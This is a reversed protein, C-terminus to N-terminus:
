ISLAELKELVTEIYMLGIDVEDSNNGDWCTASSGDLGMCNLCQVVIHAFKTGMSVPIQQKAAKVFVAHIEKPPKLGQKNHGTQMGTKANSNTKQLLQIASENSLYGYTTDWVVFSKWIAIELLMVGLSYIDHRMDYVKAPDLGQRDPHRYIDKYWEGDGDRRSYPGDKRLKEFGVLYARGISYPYRERDVAGEPEFILVTEPRVSKHVNRTVHVFFLARALQKSLEFRDSISHVSGRRANNPDLLLNRLTRPNTFGVPFEYVLEFRDESSSKTRSFGLGRLIGMRLPDTQALVWILERVCEKLMSFSVAEDVERYEMVCRDYLLDQSLWIQSDPLRVRRGPTGILELSRHSQPGSTDSIAKHINFFDQLAKSRNNSCLNNAHYRSVPKWLLLVMFLRQLFSNQWGEIKQIAGKVDEVLHISSEIHDGSLWSGFIGSNGAYVAIVSSTSNLIGELTHLPRVLHKIMAVELHDAVEAVFRIESEVQEFSEAFELKLTAIDKSKTTEIEELYTNIQQSHQVCYTTISKLSEATASPSTLVSEPNAM